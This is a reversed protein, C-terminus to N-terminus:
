DKASEKVEFLLADAGLAGIVPCDLARPVPFASGARLVADAGAHTLWAVGSLVHIQLRRGRPLRLVEGPCLVIRLTRASSDARTQRDIGNLLVPVDLSSM